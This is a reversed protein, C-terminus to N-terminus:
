ITERLYDAYAARRRYVGFFKEVDAVTLGHRAAVTAPDEGNYYALWLDDTTETAAGYFYEEQTQPASFTDTTPPRKQM